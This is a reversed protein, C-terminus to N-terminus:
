VSKPSAATAVLSSINFSGSSTTKNASGTAETSSVVATSTSVVYNNNGKPSLKSDAQAAARMNLKDALIELNLNKKMKKEDDTASTSNQTSVTSSSVVAESTDRGNSTVKEVKIETGNTIPLPNPTPSITALAPVEQINRILASPNPISRISSNQPRIKSIENLKPLNPLIRQSQIQLKNEPKITKLNVAASSTSSVSSYNNNQRIKKLADEISNKTDSKVTSRSLDLVSNLSEKGIIKNNNNSSVVDKTIDKNSNTTIQDKTPIPKITSVPKQTPLSVKNTPAVVNKNSKLDPSVPKNNSPVSQRKLNLNNIIPIPVMGINKMNKMSILGPPENNNSSTSNPQLSRKIKLLPITPPPPRTAKTPSVNSVNSPQPIKDESQTLSKKLDDIIKNNTKSSSNSNPTALSGFSIRRVQKGDDSSMKAMKKTNELTEDASISRKLTAQRNAESAISTIKLPVNGSSLSSKPPSPITFKEKNNINTIQKVNSRNVTNMQTPTPIPSLTSTATVTQITHPVTKFLSPPLPPSIPLSTDKLKIATIPPVPKVPIPAPPTPLALPESRIKEITSPSLQAPALISSDSSKSTKEKHNHHNIKVKLKLNENSSSIEAHIKRKKSSSSDKDKFEKSHKSKKRKKHSSSSSSTSSSLSHRHQESNKNNNFNFSSTVSSASSSSSSPSTDPSLKTKKDIPQLGIKRVYTEQDVSEHVPREDISLKRFRKTDIPEEKVPKPVCIKIRPIDIPKEEKIKIKSAANTHKLAREVEIQPISVMPKMNSPLNNKEVPKCIDNSRLSKFDKVFTTTYVNNPKNVKVEKKRGFTAMLVNQKSPSSTSTVTKISTISNNNNQFVKINKRSKLINSATKSDEDKFRVAKVVLDLKKPVVNEEERQEEVNTQEVKTELKNCLNKILIRYFLRLPACQLYLSFSFFVIYYFNWQVRSLSSCMFVSPLIKNPKFLLKFIRTISKHSFQSKISFRAIFNRQTDQKLLYITM